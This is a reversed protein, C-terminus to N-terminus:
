VGQDSSLQQLDIEIVSPRGDLQVEGSLATTRMVADNPLPLRVLQEEVTFTPESGESVVFTIGQYHDAASPRTGQPAHTNTCRDRGHPCDDARSCHFRSAPDGCAAIHGHSYTPSADPPRGLSRLRNAVPTRRITSLNRAPSSYGM